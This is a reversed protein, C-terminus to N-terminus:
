FVVLLLVDCSFWITTLSVQSQWIKKPPFKGIPIPPLTVKLWTYIQHKPFVDAIYNALHLRPTLSIQFNELYIIKKPPWLLMM